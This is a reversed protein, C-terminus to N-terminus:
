LKIEGSNASAYELIKEQNFEGKSLEGTMEGESLVIIRDSIGILEEMESSIMIVAKGLEVLENILKYIEYKAGVDIGRTPEDLIILDPESSLWKALVVKQQNGGSLNKVLQNLSPTKISLQKQFKGSISAEKRKDIVFFRSLRKLIAVSINERINIDLLVGKQKRDESVYAIGHKIADEPDKSFIETDNLVVSGSKIPEVGFILEALETRGAGILGGLGLIEGKKVKFSIDEVGNGTLNKVDLVIEDTMCGSRPPFTEKFERGVMLEILQRKDTEGTNLTKIKQGDRLVTVRDCLHFIEELRHSIYIITVGSEKLKKVIRFLDDTENKTLPATPEDMFLIKANMSLAKAIEVMQQYGVTLNKVLEYPNIDIHLQSFVEKTREAMAKMDIVIGNRIARGLFVNEAVTLEQILNFEQYIVSLGKKESLEPTLDTFPEDEIVITGQNPKIAGSCCKILTSKGAGNEGVLAHVEGKRIELSVDDLAVVGPYTKSLNMLKLISFEEHAM